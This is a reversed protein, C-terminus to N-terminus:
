RIDASAPVAAPAAIPAAAVEEFSLGTAAHIAQKRSVAQWRQIAVDVLRPENELAYARRGVREAALITTGSGCFTDLVIDGRRTCDRIADAVLAVPKSVTDAKLENPRGSRSASRGYQWVNSRARQRRRVADDNHPVQQGVRFIGVLEHQGRYFLGEDADAKVWVALDLMEGYVTSGTELLTGIHRWTTCVYHIAGARSLAAAEALKSELFAVFDAGSFAEAGMAYEAHGAAGREMLDRGNVAGALDLFAMAARGTGMARALDASHRGDGCLIRHRGLEWLDGLKSVPAARAWEPDLTDARDPSDEELGATLREIEVPGFGTISLDLGDVVLMEALEPLEIALLKRDWGANEAIKNDALALARRKAETLGRLEIVPVTTLGRLIAAEYRGHGAIIVGDDDVLIPVVFGFAAISDAIQRIQRRSHTRANRRSPTLKDVAVWTVEVM